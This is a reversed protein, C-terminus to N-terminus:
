NQPHAFTLQWTVAWIISVISTSTLTRPKRFFPSTSTKWSGVNNDVRSEVFNLAAIGCSGLGTAQRPVALSKVLTPTTFGTGLLLWQFIALVNSDPQLHLSDSHELESIGMTSYLSYHNSTCNFAFISEVSTSRIRARLASLNASFSHSSEDFLYKADLLCHTPLVLTSPAGSPSNAALSFYLLEALANLVDDHLWEEGLLCSLKWLPFDTIHFGFIPLSIPLDHQLTHISQSM